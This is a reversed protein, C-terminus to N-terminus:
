VKLYIYILGREVNVATITLIIETIEFKRHRVHPWCREAYEQLLDRGAGNYLIVCNGHRTEKRECM